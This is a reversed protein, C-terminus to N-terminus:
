KKLVPIHYAVQIPWEVLPTGFALSHIGEAVKAFDSDSIVPVQVGAIPNSNPNSAPILDYLKGLTQISIVDKSHETFPAQDLNLYATAKSECNELILYHM